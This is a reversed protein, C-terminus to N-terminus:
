SYGGKKRPAPLHAVWDESVDNSVRRAPNGLYVGPETISKNVLSDPGVVVNDCITLPGILTAGSSLVVNDGFEFVRREAHKRLYEPDGPRGTVLKVGAMIVVRGPSYVGNGGILVGTPHAISLAFVDVSSSDVDIAYSSYLSRDILASVGWGVLPVRYAFFRSLNIRFRVNREIYWLDGLLTRLRRFMSM